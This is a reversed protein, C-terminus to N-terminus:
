PAQQLFGRVTLMAVSLCGRHRLSGQQSSTSGQDRETKCGQRDLSGTVPVDAVRRCRGLAVGAERSVDKSLVSRHSLMFM